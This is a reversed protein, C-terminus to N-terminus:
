TAFDPSKTIIQLHPKSLSYTIQKCLLGLHIPPVILIVTHHESYIHKFIM